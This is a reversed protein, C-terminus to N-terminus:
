HVVSWTRTDDSQTLKGRQPSLIYSSCLKGCKEGVHKSMNLQFKACSKTKIYTPPDSLESVIRMDRQLYSLIM